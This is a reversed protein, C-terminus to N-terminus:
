LLSLSVEEVLLSMTLPGSTPAPKAEMFTMASFTRPRTTSRELALPTPFPGDQFVILLPRLERKPAPTWKALDLAVAPRPSAMLAHDRIIRPAAFKLSRRQRRNLPATVEGGGFIRQVDDLAPSSFALQFRINPFSSFLLRTRSVLSGFIIRGVRGLAALVAPINDAVMTNWAVRVAPVLHIAAVALDILGFVLAFFAMVTYTPNFDGNDVMDCLDMVVSDVTPDSLKPRLADCTPPPPVLARLGALFESQPVWVIIDGPPPRVILDTTWQALEYTPAVILDTTESWKRTDEQYELIQQAIPDPPPDYWAPVFRQSASFTSQALSEVTNVLRPCVIDSGWGGSKCYLYPSPALALLGTLSAKLASAFVM